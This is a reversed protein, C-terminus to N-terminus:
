HMWIMVIIQPVFASHSTKRKDKHGESWDGPVTVSFSTSASKCDLLEVLALRIYWMRKLCQKSANDLSDDLSIFLCQCKDSLTFFSSHILQINCKLNFKKETKKVCLPKHKESCVITAPLSLSVSFAAFVGRVQKWSQGEVGVCWRAGVGGGDVGAGAGTGFSSGRGTLWLGASLLLFRRVTTFVFVATSSYHSSM